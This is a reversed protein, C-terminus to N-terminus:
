IKYIKYKKSIYLILGGIINGKDKVVISITKQRGLVNEIRQDIFKPLNLLNAGHFFMIKKTDFSIISNTSELFTTIMERVTIKKDFNFDSKPLSKNYAFKVNITQIDSNM